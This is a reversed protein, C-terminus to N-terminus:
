PSEIIRNMAPYDDTSLRERVGDKTRWVTVSYGTKGSNRVRLTRGPISYQGPARLERVEQSIVPRSEPAKRGTLWITLKDNVLKAHITVPFDYPNRVVLDVDSYAVAADRGPPVYTPAFQHPHREVIELGAVLAANYLTSSTQCVGGGWDLVLQGNYSVPALRYGQDRSWSGVTQNFSFKKGSLIKVGILEKAAKWANHKQASSRGDVVTMYTGITEQDRSSPTSRSAAFGLLAAAGM